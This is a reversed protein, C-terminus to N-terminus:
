PEAVGRRKPIIKVTIAVTVTTVTITIMEQNTPRMGGLYCFRPYRKFCDQVRAFLLLAYAVM